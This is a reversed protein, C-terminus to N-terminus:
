VSCPNQDIKQSRSLDINKSYGLRSNLRDLPFNKILSDDNWQQSSQSGHSSPLISVATLYTRQLMQIINDQREYELMEREMARKSVRKVLRYKGRFIHGPVSFRLTSKISQCKIISFSTFFSGM